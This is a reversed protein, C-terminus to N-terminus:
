PGSVEAPLSATADDLQVMRTFIEDLEEDIAKMEALQAKILGRRGAVEHEGQTKARLASEMTDHLQRWRPKWSSEFEDAVEALHTRIEAVLLDSISGTKSGIQEKARAAVRDRVLAAIKDKPSEDKFAMVVGAIAIAGIVFPAVVSLGIAGLVAAAIGGGILASIGGIIVGGIAMEFGYGALDKGLGGPAM